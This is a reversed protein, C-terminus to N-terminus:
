KAGRSLLAARRLAQRWAARRADWEAKSRCPEELGVGIELYALGAADGPLRRGHRELEAVIARLVAPRGVVEAPTVGSQQESAADFAAGDPALEGADQVAMAAAEAQFAWEVLGDSGGYGAAKLEQRVKAAATAMSRVLDAAKLIHARRSRANAAPRIRRMVNAAFAWGDRLLWRSEAKAAEITAWAKAQRPGPKQDAVDRGWLRGM